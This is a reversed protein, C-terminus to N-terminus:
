KWRTPLAQLKGLYPGDKMIRSDAEELPRSRFATMGNTKTGPMDGNSNAAAQFKKEFLDRDEPSPEAVAAEPWVNKEALTPPLLWRAYGVVEGTEVDIVKQHRKEARGRILNWPIRQSNYYTLRELSPDEFRFRWHPNEYWASTLTTALGKADAHVVPQVAFAM